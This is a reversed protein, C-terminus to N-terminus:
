ARSTLPDTEAAEPSGANTGPTGRPTRAEEADEGLGETVDDMRGLCQNFTNLTALLLGLAVGLYAVVWFMM